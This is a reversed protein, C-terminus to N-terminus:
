IFFLLLQYFFILIWNWRLDWNWFTLQVVIKKIIFNREFKEWNSFACKLFDNLFDLIKLRDHKSYYRSTVKMSLILQLWLIATANTVEKSATTRSGVSAPTSVRQLVRGSSRSRVTVITGSVMSLTKTSSRFGLRILSFIMRNWLTILISITNFKVLLTNCLNSVRIHQKCSASIDALM